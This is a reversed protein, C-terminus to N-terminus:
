FKNIDYQVEERDFKIVRPQKNQSHDYFCRDVNPRDEMLIDHGNTKENLALLTMQLYYYVRICFLYVSISWFITQNLQNKLVCKYSLLRGEHFM